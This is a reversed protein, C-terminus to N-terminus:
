RLLTMKRVIAKDGARLRYFYVGAAVPRGQEDRGEWFVDYIGAKLTRGRILTKVVQGALSYIVLSVNESEPVQFYLTTSPNFPNPAALAALGDLGTLALQAALAKAAASRTIASGSNSWPGTGEKSTAKMRVLYLINGHLGTLTKSTVRGLTTESCIAQRPADSNKEEEPADEESRFAAYCYQMTYGTVPAGSTPHSWSVDLKGTGSSPVRVTPVTMKSPPGIDQVTANILKNSNAPPNGDDTARIRVVYINNTNADTPNEYDPASEFRLTLSSGSSTFSFEDSDTSYIDWTIGDGEADTATYTGVATTNENVNQRGTGSIVPATNARTYTRRIASWPSDGEDSTAKVRVSYRTGSRLNELTTSTTGAEFTLTTTSSCANTQCYQLKWGTVPADSASTSWRVDLEEHGNTAPVTVTVTPKGPPGVNRVSVTVALSASSSSSCGGRARITVQYQRSDTEYDPASRFSLTGGFFNFASADAGGLPLWRGGGGDPDSLSYSAVATTNEPISQSTPGSITPAGCDTRGSGAAWGSTGEDNAANVQVEYATNPTLSSITTSTGTGSFSHTRWNGSARYQVDYDTVPPKGSVDPADWTVSLSTRSAATVTVNPPPPPPEDVDTVNVTVTETDSAGATDTARVTLSYSTTGSEYNPATQFSVEGSSSIQFVNGSVSWTIAQGEPDTATFTDVSPTNEPVSQTGTDDIVPPRNPAKVAATADSQASKNPGHADTYGVTARLQKGRDAAVPTYHSLDVIPYRPSREIPVWASGADARQQWQWAVAELGGDFDTLTATMRQDVEPSSTSLRVTGPTDAPRVSSTVASQASKNPGHADTYGVTARLQKGRDAAVPTYHSLDAILDPNRETQELTEWTSSGATQRQWQWAVAELAGDFDTLTATVRQGVEPSATSLRVTGPTDAPRVSSTAASQASKGPGHADTYGVTARLQKGRDATVPTYRSLDAILDPNRETQELTEWTSGADARWQWQWAVAELAGDFDTLTATVRQDVEPSSTSLRVTGPTDAPRVSSTAASQASKGPGHADTYGVTARLQKGRDAAVPTYRSTAAIPYRASREIPVWGSGADARRQWQWITDAVSGDFDVLTATMRQGVEPSSTSLRVTGPTDAPRVSSTAASQASKDPGHADTYGVTARLQKGRDATVPTYRSTAAIPYRASREIPVWGSSADARRQWQWSTDAVSGDFDVLTATVATGVEPSTTSLRVTGPPDGDDDVLRVTATAHTGTSVREPLDGFGLAVSEDVRDADQTATISFSQSTTAASFSLTDAVGPWTATYDGSESARTIPIKVLPEAAASLSVTVAVSEGGEVAEYSSRGFTVTLRRPAVLEAYERAAVKGSGHADAYDVRASLLLGADGSVPRYTTDSAVRQHARGGPGPQRTQWQWVAGTVGGDPDRLQARLQHGVQPSTPPALSVVGPDDENTIRVSVGLTTKAEPPGATRAEVIVSWVNDGDADKPHEYDPEKTFRLEGDDEDIALTDSADAGSLTWSVSAPATGDTYRAVYPAVLGTAGEAFTTDAAGLIELRRVPPPPATAVVPHTEGSQVPKRDEDDASEGDLYGVTVRLKKGVDATTPWYTALGPYTSPPSHGRESSRTVDEWGGAGDQREWLQTQVRVNGDPDTVVATLKVDVQPRTSVFEVQGPEDVNTVTVSVDHLTFDPPNGNDTAQVTVLYVNDHGTDDPDEFDPAAFDPTARFTLQGNRSGMAFHTSDANAPRQGDAHISWTVTHGNADTATYAAVVGTGNEAFTTDSAGVILLEDDDVLSVTAEAPTGALVEEPLTGFGLTVTEDARDADQDARITFTGSIGSAIALTTDTGLGALTFPGSRPDVSIPIRLGASVARSLRVTVTEAVGGETAEYTSPDFSVRPVLVDDDTLTVTASSPTGAVVGSPLDRFGLAVTEDVRDADQDARITFTGSVGSAITLTTDTGLGALTFPGSRPDVSIPIRLGSSVAPSLRVTVTEAEGGESASYSAQKFAVTRETPGTAQVPGIAASEASKNPGHGDTYSVTAQLYQGADASVPTYAAATAGSIATWAAQDSARRHWQWGTVEAVEDADSLTASLETGVQATAPRVTVEGPADDDDFLTVTARAPDGASVGEPLPTGFGLTVEEDDWDDDQDAAITFTQREAGSSFSLGGDTLGAVTFDGSPPNVAIPIRLAESASPSLRVTVTAAEGGESAQYAAAAFSVTREAAAPTATAQAAPGWGQGNRARVEFTHAEGNTLGEVQQRRASGDGPVRVWKVADLRRYQYRDITGGNNCGAEWTLTVQGDGPAAKLNAPACPPGPGVARSTTASVRHRGSDDTYDDTYTVEVWLWHNLDSVQPTYKRTRAIVGLKSEGSRSGPAPASLSDGDDSRPWRLRRWRWPAEALVPNDPDILTPTLEQGVRPQNTSLEVQGRTDPRRPTASVVFSEPGTEAGLLARVQFEYSVGNTLSEVEVTTVTAGAGTPEWSDGDWTGDEQKYRYAWGTIGEIGAPADWSLRVAGDQARARLGLVTVANAEPSPQGGPGVLYATFRYTKGTDLPNDEGAVPVSFTQSSSMRDGPHSSRTGSSGAALGGTGPRDLGAGSFEVCVRAELPGTCARFVVDGRAYPEGVAPDPAGEEVEERLSVLVRLQVSGEESSDRERELVFWDASGTWWEGVPNTAESEESKAAGSRSHADRYSVTARLERGYDQAAVRYHAKSRSLIPPLSPINVWDSGPDRRQWQWVQETLPVDPDELTASLLHNFERIRTSLSVTGPEDVDTVTVTVPHSAALPPMGNDTAVVTVEYVTDLNADTPNEYNPPSRFSLDFSNGAADSPPSFAAADAGTLSWTIADGDADTATYTAVPQESNEDFSPTGPGSVVPATNLTVEVPGAAPGLGAANHARVEFSYREGHTLSLVPYSLTGTAEDRTLQDDDVPIEVWDSGGQRYEWRDLTFDDPDDWSLIAAGDGGEITLNAPARPLFTVDVRIQDPGETADTRAIDTVALGVEGPDVQEGDFNGSSTTQRLGIDARDSYVADVPGQSFTTGGIMFTTTGVVPFPDFLMDQYRHIDRTPEHDRADHIRRDDAVILLPQRREQANRIRHTPWTAPYTTSRRWIFLGPDEDYEHYLLYRGFSIGDSGDHARRELLYEIDGRTILHVTGPEIEYNDQSGTIPTPTIWGLDWQYFPNIPPPCSRYVTHYGDSLRLPGAGDGQMVVWHLMNGGRTTSTSGPMYPNPVSVGGGGHYLGLLHGIEHAHTYIPAFEDIPRPSVDRHGGEREGMVYRYGVEAPSSPHTVTHLDANPHLLGAPSRGKFTAGSYLYAVKHGVRQAVTAGPGIGTIAYTSIASVGCNAGPVNSSPNWCRVSDMATEYADDWFLDRWRRGDPRRSPENIEIVAYEAKPRPLEIWRPYGQSDVPNIMRVNLQFMGNSVSDFYARVSGFVEPLVHGGGVTQNTGVFDPLTGYGGSFLREFDRLTYSSDASEGPNTGYPRDHLHYVGTGTTADQFTVLVVDLTMSRDWTDPSGTALVSHAWLFPLLAIFLFPRSM